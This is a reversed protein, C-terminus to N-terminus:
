KAKLETNNKDSAREVVALLEMMQGCDTATLRSFISNVWGEHEEALIEFEDKGKKTLRVLQARRDGPYAVRIVSGVAVLRDVIGTVNGNSVRLAESLETMRLGKSNRYLAALVDFRPLTTAFEIRLNERVSAEVHRTTKLLKLWLRLRQKTVPERRSSRPSVQSM